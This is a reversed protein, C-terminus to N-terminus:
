NLFWICVFFLSVGAMMKFIAYKLKRNIKFVPYKLGCKQSDMLGFNPGFLELVPGSISDSLKIPYLIEIM